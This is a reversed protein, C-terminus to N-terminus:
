GNIKDLFEEENWIAIGLENAKNYKSGPNEGVVVVDTKSTVSGTVKGGRIEIWEKADDRAIELAGTLVFTKGNFEEMLQKEKGIYNFNVSYKNLKDLLELNKSNSFYEILSEAIVEGIDPIDKLEEATASKLNDLNDYHQSLILATKKGVHRIGFGFLLRELSNAKSNEIAGLLNEISKEGFGELEKLEEKHNSLTYYEDISRLYGFNYFDEVIRDGFGELYMADRSAYHILGEINRADCDPNLCYYASEEEKRIVPEKCIPCISTMIFDIEKGTRREKKVEVVEPIVDGAKHIEVTDGIKIDKLVVYDENHLTVSSIISGAVRVPELDARPTIKGTRGVCFEINKLKTLVKEPPYKYAIAWRPVKATYGLKKQDKLNNIKIVIGDIEYPLSDRHIAWYEIYELVENINKAIKINPNVILTLKEMYELSDYHTMINYKNAEPMHYFFAELNRSAAIKSDLQRVSGAAANRPNAFEKEDNERKEKNLNEFSKKPMYIEGRVEIDIDEPLLLPISKITKVNHTIDEGTTGDGRTAGRVLKGNEYLISLSLGDIKLECVYEPNPVTKKIREDFAQVEEENFVDGLSMLPIEHVVKKFSDIVEGGINVTPSDERVLNPNATELRVLEDYYSDYEQDTISPNDLTYYEYSAKKIIQILEDIRQEIM